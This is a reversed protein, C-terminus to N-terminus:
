IWSYINVSREMCSGGAAQKYVGYLGVSCCCSGSGCWATVWWCCWWGVVGGVGGVLVVVGSKEDEQLHVVMISSNWIDRGGPGVVWTVCSGLSVRNLSSSYVNFVLVYVCVCVCVCVCMGNEEGGCPAPLLVVRTM